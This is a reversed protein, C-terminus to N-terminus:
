PLLGGALLKLVEGAFPVGVSELVRLGEVAAEREQEALQVVQAVVISAMEARALRVDTANARLGRIEAPLLRGTEPDVAFVLSEIEVDKPSWLYMAGDPTLGVSGGVGETALRIGDPSVSLATPDGGTHMTLDDGSTWQLVNSAIDSDVVEGPRIVREPGVHACGSLLVALLLLPHIYRM